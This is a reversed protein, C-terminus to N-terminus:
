GGNGPPMPAELKFPHTEKGRYDAWAAAVAFARKM